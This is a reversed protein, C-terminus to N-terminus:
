NLVISVSITFPKSEGSVRTCGGCNRITYVSKATSDGESSYQYLSGSRCGRVCVLTMYAVGVCKSSSLTAKNGFLSAWFM